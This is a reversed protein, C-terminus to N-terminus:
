RRGRLTKRSVAGYGIVVGIAIIVVCFMRSERM